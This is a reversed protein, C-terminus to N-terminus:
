LCQDTETQKFKFNTKTDCLLFYQWLDMDYLNFFLLNYELCMNKNRRKIIHKEQYAEFINFSM